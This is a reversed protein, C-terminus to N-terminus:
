PHAPVLVIAGPDTAKGQMLAVAQAAIRRGRELADDGRLVVTGVRQHGGGGFAEFIHGLHISEFELWPNRMANVRVSDPSVTLGVSYRAKPFVFYPAYRAGMLSSAEIEYTTVGDRLVASRRVAEVGREVQERGVRFWERTLKQEAVNELTDHQLLLVMASCYERGAAQLATNIRLAPANGFLAEEVSDYRAADIKTAWEVLPQYALNKHDYTRGLVDYMLHACSPAQPDYVRIADGTESALRPRPDVFTSAHHDVWFAAEPHFLFDVVAAPRQLPTALWSDRVDYNVPNLQVDRWGRRTEVFDLAVVASAVGDFCPAHFYLAPTRPRMSGAPRLLRGISAAVRVLPLALRDLRVSASDVM